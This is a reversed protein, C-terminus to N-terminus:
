GSLALQREAQHSASARDPFPEGSRRPITPQPSMRVARAAGPCPHHAAVRRGRVRPRSRSLGGPSSVARRGRGGAAAEARSTTEHRVVFTTRPGDPGPEESAGTGADADTGARRPGHGGTGTGAARTASPNAGVGSRADRGGLRRSITSVSSSSGAPSPSRRWRTSRDDGIQWRDPSKLVIPVARGKPDPPPAGTPDGVQEHGPVPRHVFRRPASRDGRPRAVRARSAPRRLSM